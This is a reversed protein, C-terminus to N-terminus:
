FLVFKEGIEFVHLNGVNMLLGLPPWVCLLQSSGRNSRMAKIIYNLFVAVDDQDSHM